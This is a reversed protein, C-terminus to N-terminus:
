ISSNREATDARGDIARSIQQALDPQHITLYGIVDRLAARLCPSVYLPTDTEFCHEIEAQRQIAQGLSTFSDCATLVHYLGRTQVIAIKGDESIEWLYTGIHEGPLAM